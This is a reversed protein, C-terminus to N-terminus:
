HNYMPSMEIKTVHLQLEYEVYNKTKLLIAMRAYARHTMEQKGKSDVCQHRACIKPEKFLVAPRTTCPLTPAPHASGLNGSPHRNQCSYAELVFCKMRDQEVGGQPNLAHWSKTLTPAPTSEMCVPVTKIDMNM